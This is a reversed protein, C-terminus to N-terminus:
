EAPVPVRITFDDNFRPFMPDWGGEDKGNPGATYLVFGKGERGYFFPRDDFVDSPLREIYRPALAALTGPYEGREHRYAALALVIRVMQLESRGRARLDHISSMAGAILGLSEEALSPKPTEEKARAEASEKRSDQDGEAEKNGDELIEFLPAFMKKMAQDFVGGEALERLSELADRREAFTPRRLSTLVEDFIVNCGKLEADAQRQSRPFHSEFTAIIEELGLRRVQEITDEPGQRMLHCIKDLEDYRMAVDVLTVLDDPAALQELQQRYRAAQESTPRGYHAWVVDGDSAISQLASGVLQTVMNPARQLLVALRHIALVDAEAEQLDGEGIRLMARCRLARAVHRLPQVPAVFTEHLSNDADKPVLPFYLRPRRSAETIRRLPEENLVLWDAVLGTSKRTWPRDYTSAVLDHFEESGTDISRGSAFSALEVFYPGDDPPVPVGLQEFYAQRYKADIHSPGLAQWILMAANNEVTVGRRSHRRLAEVYDVYGDPRLPGLIRTTAIGVTVPIPVWPKNGAPEADNVAAPQVESTPPNKPDGNDACGLPISIWAYTALTRCLTLPSCM